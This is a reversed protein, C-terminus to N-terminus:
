QAHTERVLAKMATEQTLPVSFTATGGAGLNEFRASVSGVLSGFIDTLDFIIEASNLLRGSVNRATGVLKLGGEHTVRAESVELMRNPPIQVNKLEPALKAAMEARSMEAVPASLPAPRTFVWVLVVAGVLVVAAVVLWPRAKQLPTRNSLYLPDANPSGALMRDLIDRLGRRPGSDSPQTENTPDPM